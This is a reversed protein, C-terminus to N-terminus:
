TAGWFREAYRREEPGSVNLYIMTTSLRAHGLWRQVLNIPVDAGLAGVGFSHRLGRPCAAPGAIAADDMVGKIIKWGWERGWPWLRARSTAPSRQRRHLDFHDDLALMLEDPVPVERIVFKRRKLTRIAVVGPEIQFSGPTLGLVESIRAGTWALTLAFLAHSPPLKASECLARSREAANLYKREGNAAYLSQEGFSAGARSSSNKTVNKSM